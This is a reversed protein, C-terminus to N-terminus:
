LEIVVQGKVKGATRDKKDDPQEIGSFKCQGSHLVTHKPQKDYAFRVVEAGNNGVTEM